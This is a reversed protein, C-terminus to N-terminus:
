FLVNKIKVDIQGRRGPRCEVLAEPVQNEVYKMLDNCQKKFDCVGCYEINVNVSKKFQNRSENM